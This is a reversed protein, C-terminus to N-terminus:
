VPASIRVGDVRAHISNYSLRLAGRRDGPLAPLTIISWFL